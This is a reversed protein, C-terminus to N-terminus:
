NGVTSHTYTPQVSDALTNLIKNYDEYTSTSPILEDNMPTVKDELSRRQNIMNHFICDRPIRQSCQPYKM